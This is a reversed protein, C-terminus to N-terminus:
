GRTAALMITTIMVTLLLLLVAIIYPYPMGAFSLALYYATYMVSLALSAVFPVAIFLVIDKKDSM